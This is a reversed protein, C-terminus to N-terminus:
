VYSFTSDLFVSFGLFFYHLCTPVTTHIELIVSCSGCINSLLVEIINVMVVKMTGESSRKFSLAITRTAYAPFQQM